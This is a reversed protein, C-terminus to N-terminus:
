RNSEELATRQLRLKDLLRQNTFVYVLDRARSPKLKNRKKNHIYDYTSWNRECASASSVQALVRVAVKQLAKSGKGYQEWWQHAPLEAVDELAEPFSFCGEKASFSAYQHRASQQEKSICEQIRTNAISRM